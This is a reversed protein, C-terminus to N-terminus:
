GSRGRMELALSRRGKNERIGRLRDRAAGGRRVLEGGAGGRGDETQKKM